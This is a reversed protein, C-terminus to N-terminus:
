INISEIYEKPSIGVADKFVKSFYLADQFGSLIAVNKVSVIGQEILFMAHKIRIDRLYKTYAIGKQKKFLFSVYKSHYGLQEAVSSLSLEPDTFREETLAIVKYVVDNVKNKICPNLRALSYLLTAESLIDINGDNVSAINETWFPILAENESFLRCSVSIGLRDMYESARRGNFSIYYYELESISEISFREGKLVFFLSGRQLHYERGGCFLTGEGKAVLNIIHNEATRPVSQCDTGEYVFNLCVLDSSQNFNFKCINRTEM